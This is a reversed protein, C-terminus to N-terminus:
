RGDDGTPAHRARPEGRVLRVNATLESSNGDSINCLSFAQMHLWILALLFNVGSAQDQFESAKTSLLKNTYSSIEMNNMGSDKLFM